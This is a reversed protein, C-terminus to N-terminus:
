KRRASRAEEAEQRAIRRRYEAIGEMMRDLSPDGRRSGFVEALPHDPPLGPTLEPKAEPTANPKQEESMAVELRM